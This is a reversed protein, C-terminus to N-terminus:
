SYINGEFNLTGTYFTFLAIGKDVFVGFSEKDHVKLMGYFNMLQLYRHIRRIENTQLIEVTKKRATAEDLIRMSLNRPDGSYKELLIKSLVRWKKISNEINSAGIKVLVKSLGEESRTSIQAADFFWPSEQYLQRAQKWTEVSGAGQDLAFIYTLYLAHEKSGAIMEPPPGYEPIKFNQFIGTGKEYQRHISDAIKKAKNLDRKFSENVDM